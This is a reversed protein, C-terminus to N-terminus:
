RTVRRRASRLSLQLTRQSVLPGPPGNTTASLQTSLTRRFGQEVRRRGDAGIRLRLDATEGPMLSVAERALEVEQGRSQYSVLRVGGDCRNPRAASCQVRVAVEAGLRGSASVVELGLNSIAAIARGGGHYVSAGDASVVLDEGSSLGRGQNCESPPDSGGTLLCRGGGLRGTETDLPYAAVVDPGTSYLTRGDPSM